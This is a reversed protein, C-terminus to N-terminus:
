HVSVTSDVQLVIKGFHGSADMLQHAAQVEDLLFVRDVLPSLAGNAFHAATDKAFRQIIAEKEAVPRPRLVSGIIKQRRVM